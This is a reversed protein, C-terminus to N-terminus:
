WGDRQRPKSAFISRPLSDFHARGSVTLAMGDKGDVILRLKLLRDLDARRLSRAVSEGFAVRRLTIAEEETLEFPRAVASTNEPTM